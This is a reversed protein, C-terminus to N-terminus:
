KTLIHQLDLNHKESYAFGLRDAIQIKRRIINLPSELKLKDFELIDTDVQKFFDFQINVPSSFIGRKYKIWTTGIYNELDETGYMIKQLKGFQASKSEPIVIDIDKTDRELLGFLKLANSGTIVEGPAFKLYANYRDSQIFEKHAKENLTFKRGELIQIQFDRFLSKIKDSNSNKTKIM